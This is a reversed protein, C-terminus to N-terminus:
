DQKGNEYDQYEKSIAKPNASGNPLLLTDSATGSPTAVSTPTASMAPSPQPTQLGEEEDIAPQAAEQSKTSQDATQDTTQDEATKSCAALSLAFTLVFAAYSSRM